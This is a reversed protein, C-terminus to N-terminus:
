LIRPMLDILPLLKTFIPLFLNTLSPANKGYMLSVASVILRM